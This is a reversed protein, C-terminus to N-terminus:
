NAEIASSSEFLKNPFQISSMFRYSTAHRWYWTISKFSHIRKSNPHNFITEVRIKHYEHIKLVLTLPIKVQAAIKHLARSNKTKKM